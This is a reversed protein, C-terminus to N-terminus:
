YPEDMEFNKLNEWIENIKRQFSKFSRLCNKCSARQCDDEMVLKINMANSKDLGCYTKLDGPDDGKLIHVKKKRYKQM